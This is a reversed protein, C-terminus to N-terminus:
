RSGTEAILTVNILCEFGGSKKADKACRSCMTTADWVENTPADIADMIRYQIETTANNM